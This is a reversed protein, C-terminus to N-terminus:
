VQSHSVPLGLSLKSTPRLCQGQQEYSGLRCQVPAARTARGGKAHARDFDYRAYEASSVATTHKLQPTYGTYGEVRGTSHTNAVAADLPCSALTNNIKKLM